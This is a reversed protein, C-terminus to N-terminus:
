GSGAGECDPCAGGGNPRFIEPYVFTQPGGGGTWCARPPAGGRALLSPSGGGGTWRYLSPDSARLYRVPATAHSQDRAEAYSFARDEVDKRAWGWGFPSPAWGM